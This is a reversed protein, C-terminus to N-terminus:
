KKDGDSGQATNEAGSPTTGGGNQSSAPKFAPPPAPREAIGTPGNLGGKRVYGETLINPSRVAGGQVKGVGDQAFSRGLRDPPNM